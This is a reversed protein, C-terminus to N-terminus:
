GVSLDHQQNLLRWEDLDAHMARAAQEVLDGARSLNSGDRELREGIQELVQATQESRVASGVYDGQVRIGFVATGIAPLGASLITFWNSNHSVWEPAIGFGALLVVCGVLAAAFLSLGVIELRHDLREAQGAASRHYAVQPALEHEAITATLLKLREADIMGSPCGMARWVASAYWDVWRRSIPNATTGPPDPAALGLLKLSRMPRLREALQRYDLWRRHWQEKTGVWTNLLIALVAIFEAVALLKKADPAILTTLALLVAFAGLAFNFVHGSRYSQAFHGALSDAWEYWNQLGTLPTNVANVRQCADCYTQWEAHTQISCIDNRWHTKRLRTVGAAALLLPYEIRTRIKRRCEHQFKRIFRREQEDPPPSVLVTLTSLLEDRGFTRVNAVDDAGTVIAPEYASWRLTVAGSSAIPVHITPTARDHALRVIEGTGGRGRPPLGDWVAILLDSHAVTARGAMVYSELHHSSEGPLELVCTSRQVLADFRARSEDDPLDARYTERNFPLIAHLEFGLELAIHAGIQDAGDALPSVFLLRPDASSFYQRNASRVEAVTESM